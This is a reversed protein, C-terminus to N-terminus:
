KKISRPKSNKYFNFPFNIGINNFIHLVSLWLFYEHHFLVGVCVALFMHLIEPNSTWEWVTIFEFFHFQVKFYQQKLLGSTEYNMSVEKYLSKPILVQFACHPNSQHKILKLCYLLYLEFNLLLWQLLWHGIEWPLLKFKFVVFGQYTWWDSLQRVLQLCQVFM